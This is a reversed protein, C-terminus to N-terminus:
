KYKNLIKRYIGPFLTKIYAKMAFLIWKKGWFKKRFIIYENFNIGKPSYLFEFRQKLSLKPDYAGHFDKLECQGIFQKTTICNINIDMARLGYDIDGMSHTYDSSLKGLKNYINYSILVVNGNIYKCSQIKGNPIVPGADTRGGYSFQKNNDRCAGVIISEKYKSNLSENYCEFINIIADKDLFSDDNLWLFFHFNKNYNLSMEWAVRMGSNWFLNSDGKFINVDPYKKKVVVATNDPSSADVLFITFNLDKPLNSEYLRNICKLTTNVRNYCSILIALNTM